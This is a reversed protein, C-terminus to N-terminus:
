RVGPLDNLQKMSMFLQKLLLEDKALRRGLSFTATDNHIKKELEEVPMFSEIVGRAWGLLARAQTRLATPSDGAKMADWLEVYVNNLVKYKEGFDPYTESFTRPKEQIEADIM